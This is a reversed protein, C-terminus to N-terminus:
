NGSDTHQIEKLKYVMENREFEKAPDLKIHVFTTQKDDSSFRIESAGHFELWSGGEFQISKSQKKIVRRELGILPGGQSWSSSIMTWTYKDADRKLQTLNKIM